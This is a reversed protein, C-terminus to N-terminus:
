APPHRLEWIHDRKVWIEPNRHKQAVEIIEQRTMGLYECISNIYRVPFEGDYRRILPLAAERTMYGSQIMRCAFRTARGFGFKVHMMYYDLDDIMDDISDFGEFSGDSRGPVGPEDEVGVFGLHEQAFLANEFASWKFFYSFYLATVGVRHIEAADPMVYPALDRESVTQDAWNQPDDGIQHELVEALDRTRRHEESLIHGGYESEGHEAYFILPIRYAVAAQLPVANVAADYHQKPHGRELLFRRALYKSVRQDARFYLVDFGLNAMRDFNARGVDTWLLQGYCVLLPHLGAEKLKYAVVSSDKGGSFPVICDYRGHGRRERVLQRFEEERADWDIRQKEEAWWCANCIGDSFTVRPRSSPMVCRRCFEISM